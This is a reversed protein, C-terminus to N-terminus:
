KSETAKDCEFLLLNDFQLGTTCHYTGKCLLLRSPTGGYSLPNTQGKCGAVGPELGLYVM